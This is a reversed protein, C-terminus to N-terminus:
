RISKQQAELIKEFNNVFYPMFKNNNGELSNYTIQDTKPLNTKLIELEALLTKSAEELKNIQPEEPQQSIKNM